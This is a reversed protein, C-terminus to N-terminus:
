SHIFVVNQNITTEVAGSKSEHCRQPHSKEKPLLSNQCIRRNILVNLIQM